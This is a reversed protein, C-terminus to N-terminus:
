YTEREPDSSRRETYKQVTGTEVVKRARIRIGDVKM